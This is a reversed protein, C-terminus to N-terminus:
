IQKGWFFIKTYKNSNFVCITIFTYICVLILSYMVNTLGLVSYLNYNNDINMLNIYFLHVFYIELTYKGIKPIITKNVINKYYLVSFVLVYSGSLAAIIKIIIGILNDDILLLSWKNIIFLFTIISTLFGYDHILILAKNDKNLIHKFYGICNGLLYYFSYYLILKSGMFDLTVFVAIGFFPLLFLIFCLIYLYIYKYYNVVNRIIYKVLSSIVSYVWLVFVFWLGNTIKTIIMNLDSFSYANLVIIQFIIFYSLYPILYSKTHKILIKKLDKIKFIKVQIKCLYGSILIFLPMQISLIINCLKVTESDCTGYQIVHRIVVLLILIGKISDITINRKKQNM